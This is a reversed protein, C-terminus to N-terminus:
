QFWLSDGKHFDQGLAVGLADTELYPLEKENYFKMCVDDKIIAKQKEYLEQYMSNWTWDTKASTQMSRCDNTLVQGSVEYQRVHNCNEKALLPPM